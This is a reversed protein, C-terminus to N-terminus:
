SHTSTLLLLLLYGPSPEGFWLGEGWIKQHKIADVVLMTGYWQEQDNLDQRLLCGLHGRHLLFRILVEVNGVVAGRSCRSGQVCSWSALWKVESWEKRALFPCGCPRKLLWPKWVQNNTLVFWSANFFVLGSFHFWCTLPRLM